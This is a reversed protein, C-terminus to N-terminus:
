PRYTCSADSTEWVTVAAFHPVQKAMIGAIYGSLNECTPNELGPVENLVHHDFRQQLVSWAEDIVAFDVLWGTAPDVPGVLEIEVRYSHGHMRSCKHGAPVAPLFHASEFFFLKKLTVQV